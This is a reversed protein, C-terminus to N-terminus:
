KKMGAKVPGIGTLAEVQVDQPVADVEQLSFEGWKVGQLGKLTYGILNAKNEDYITVKGNEIETRSNSTLQMCGSTTLLLICTLTIIRM